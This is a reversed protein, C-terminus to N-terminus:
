RRFIARHDAATRTVTARSCRHRARRYQRHPRQARIGAGPRHERGARTASRQSSGSEPVSRWSRHPSRSPGGIAAHYTSAARPTAASDSGFQQRHNATPTSSQLSRGRRGRRRRRKLVFVVAADGHETTHRRHRCRSGDTRRNVACSRRRRRARYRPIRRRAVRPRRDEPRHHGVTGRQVRHVRGASTM